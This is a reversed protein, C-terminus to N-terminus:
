THFATSHLSEHRIRPVVVTVYRTLKSRAMAYHGRYVLPYADVLLLRCAM